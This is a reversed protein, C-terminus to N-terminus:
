DHLSAMKRLNGERFSDHYAQIAEDDNSSHIPRYEYPDTTLAESGELAGQRRVGALYASRLRNLNRGNIGKFYASPDFPELRSATLFVSGLEVARHVMLLTAVVVIVVVATTLYPM